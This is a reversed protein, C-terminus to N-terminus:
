HAPHLRKVLTLRNGGEPMAEHSVADMVQRILHWGLGGIRRQRWAATLDPEPADGPDFPRAGDAVVVVIRDAHVVITLRLPGPAGPPYGHEIVNRCAEEVALRLDSAGVTDLGARAAAEDTRALLPGLSARTALTEVDVTALPAAVPTM